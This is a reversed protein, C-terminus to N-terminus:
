VKLSSIRLCSMSPDEILLKLKLISTVCKGLFEITITLLTKSIEFLDLYTIWWPKPSFTFNLFLVTTVHFCLKIYLRCM